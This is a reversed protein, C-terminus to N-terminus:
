DNKPRWGGLYKEALEIAEQLRKNGQEVKRASKIAARVRDEDGLIEILVDWALLTEKKVARSGMSQSQSIYTTGKLVNANLAPSNVSLSLPDGDADSRKVALLLRMLDWESALKRTGAARIEVNLENELRKAVDENVLKHGSGKKYGVLRVLELKASLTSVNPMIKSVAEEILEPKELQRLLRLVVRTVTIRADTFSWMDRPREPMDPLLNLLVISAPVVAETPYTRDFHTLAEVVDQLVEEDISRLFKDLEKQDTIIAYAKEAEDFAALNASAVREMYLGFIDQHALRRDKLWHGSFDYSYNSGGLHRDAAPFVRSFLAKVVKENKDGAVDLIREISQKLHPSEYRDYGDRLNTLADQARTLELFVDPLFVRVAELALIDGLEVRSGLARVTGRASATYRRVDRMNKILPKVVEMLLDPWRDQDLNTGGDVGDLGQELAKGLQTLLLGDSAAPIDVSVQVIKELYSRGDIGSETLADEVRARDFALLYIINPFSATLRVLKFIDRIENTQLRDIDDIVIIIPQELEALSKALEARQATVSKRKREAFKRFAGAAKGVREIWGGVFPLVALSTLLPNLLDGYAEIEGAIKALKKGDKVKLQAALEVFFANVLQETGSFMWPNFDVHLLKPEEDLGLRVLNILSTKGSGWPGMVAMVFGESADLDRVENVLNNAVGARSLLDEEPRKIPNDSPARM